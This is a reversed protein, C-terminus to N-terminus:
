RTPHEHVFGATRDHCDEGCDPFRRLLDAEDACLKRLDGSLEAEECVRAFHDLTTVYLRHREPAPLRAVPDLRYRGWLSLGVAAAAVLAVAAIVRRRLPSEAEELRAITDRVLHVPHKGSTM